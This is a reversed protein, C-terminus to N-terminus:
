NLACAERPWRDSTDAWEMLELMVRGIEGEFQEREVIGTRYLLLFQEIADDLDDNTLCDDLQGSLAAAATAVVPWLDEDGPLVDLPLISRDARSCLLSYAQLALM